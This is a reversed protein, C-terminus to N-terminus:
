AAEQGGAHDITDRRWTEGCRQFGRRAFLSAMRDSGPLTDSWSLGIEHVKPNSDAWALYADVLVMMARPNPKSGPRAILFQDSAALMDGVVYIRSLAGLIFMDIEGDDTENVMLFMGGEHSFGHKMAAQAFLKRAIAMDVNVAGAYRSVACAASVLEALVPADVAKGARIM